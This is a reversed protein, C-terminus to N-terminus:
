WFNFLFRLSIWLIKMHNTPHTAVIVCYIKKLTLGAWTSTGFIQVSFSSKAKKMLVKSMTMILTQHCCHVYIGNRGIREFTCLSSYFHFFRCLFTAFLPFLLHYSSLFFKTHFSWIICTPLFLTTRMVRSCSLASHHIQCGPFTDIICCFIRDISTTKFCYFSPLDRSGVVPERLMSARRLGYFRGNGDFNTIFLM